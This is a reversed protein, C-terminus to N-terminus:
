AIKESDSHTRNTRSLKEIGNTKWYKRTKGHRHGADAITNAREGGMVDGSENDRRFIDTYPLLGNVIDVCGGEVIAEVRPFILM